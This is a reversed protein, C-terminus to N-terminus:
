HMRMTTNEVAHGSSWVFSMFVIKGIEWEVCYVMNGWLMSITSHGYTM